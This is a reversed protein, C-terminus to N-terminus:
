LDVINTLQSFTIFQYDKSEHLAKIKSLFADILKHNPEGDEFFEWHHTVIITFKHKDIYNDLQKITDQTSKFKSFLCGPHELMAINKDKIYNNKQLKMWHYKIRLMMDVRAKDIWGLSFIKFNDKIIKLANPSYKDQPAVFTLPVLGFARKFIEKGKTLKDTIIERDNNEFEYSPPLGFHTYGHLLFEANPINKLYTILEKNEDIPWEKNVGAVEKPIFPEYTGPGFDLSSTIASTNVSPITAFNIPINNDFLYSYVTSLEKITTHYNLDDDRILIYKM